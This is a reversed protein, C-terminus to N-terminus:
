RQVQDGRPLRENVDELEDLEALLDQLDDGATDGSLDIGTEGEVLLGGLGLGLLEDSEVLGSADLLLTDEDLDSRSPLTDLSSALELAVVANVAVKSQEEPESLGDSTSLYTWGSTCNM